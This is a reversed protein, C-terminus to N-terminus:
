VGECGSSFKFMVVEFEVKADEVFDEESNGSVKTDKFMKLNMIKRFKTAKTFAKPQM